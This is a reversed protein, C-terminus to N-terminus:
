SYRGKRQAARSTRRFDGQTGLNPAGTSSSPSAPADWPHPDEGPPAWCGRGKWGQMGRCSNKHKGMVAQVCLLTNNTLCHSGPSHPYWQRRLVEQSLSFIYNYTPLRISNAAKAWTLVAAPCSYILFRPYHCCFLSILIAGRQLKSM